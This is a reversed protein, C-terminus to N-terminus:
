PMSENNMEALHRAVAGTGCGGELIRAKPEIGIWSFYTERMAVQQLDSARLELADIIVELIEPDVETIQAYPDPM